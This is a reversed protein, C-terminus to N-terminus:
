RLYALAVLPLPLGLVPRDATGLFRESGGLHHPFDVVSERTPVATAIIAPTTPVATDSALRDAPAGLESVMARGRMGGDEVRSFMILDGRPSWLPFNDYGTTLTTVV